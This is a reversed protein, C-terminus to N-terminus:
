EHNEFETFVLPAKQIVSCHLNACLQWWKPLNKQGWKKSLLILIPEESVRNSVWIDVNSVDSIVVINTKISFKRDHKASILYSFLFFLATLVIKIICCYLTRKVMSYDM